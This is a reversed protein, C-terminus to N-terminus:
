SFVQVHLSIDISIFFRAETVDLLAQLFAVAIYSDNPFIYTKFQYFSKITVLGPITVEPTPYM